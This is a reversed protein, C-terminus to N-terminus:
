FREETMQLVERTDPIRRGCLAHAIPLLLVRGTRSQVEFGTDPLVIGAAETLAQLNKAAHDRVHDGAAGAPIAWLLAYRPAHTRQCARARCQSTSSMRRLIPYPLM